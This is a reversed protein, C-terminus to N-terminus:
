ADGRPLTVVFCAGLSLDREARGGNAREETSGFGVAQQGAVAQPVARDSVAAPSAIVEMTGDHAEVIRRAIIMGLGTGQTKTTFFPEFVRNAVAPSIGPGDDRYTLRVAPRDGIWASEWATEVRVPDECAALSNEILNRFVQELQFPDVPCRLDDLSDRDVWEAEREHRVSATSKWAEAFIEKLGESRRDLKMPSVYGRLNEFLRHLRDHAQQVDAILEGAEANGELQWELMKACAGIQQLANRSEHAVGTVMQGVAALREARLMRDEGAKRQTVDWFATQTGIVRGAADLVPSKLLELFVTRGDPLAHQQVRQLVEHTEIVRADDRRSRTAEDPPLTDLDTMGIVAAPIQGTLERFRSNVYTYRGDLDKRIVALPLNEVLSQYLAESDALKQARQEAIATREEVRIELTENLRQLAGVTEKVRLVMPRFVFAGTLGLVVWTSLFSWYAMRRLQLLRTESEQKYAAVVANLGDMVRRSLGVERIYRYLPNALTLEADDSRALERLHTLFNRVETDLLWPVNEYIERVEPLPEGTRLLDFEILQFHAAELPEIAVLLEERLEDRRERSDITVLEQALLTTSLLLTRQRGSITLLETGAENARIEARLLLYNALALGAVLGLALLWRLTLARTMPITPQPM